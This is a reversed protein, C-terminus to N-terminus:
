AADETWNPAPRSNQRAPIPLDAADLGSFHNQIRLAFSTPAEPPTDAVANQLIIRVEQEMSWGHHAARLRLQKKLSEGLNRVTISSM